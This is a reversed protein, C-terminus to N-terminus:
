RIDERLFGAAFRVIAEGDAGLSAAATRIEGLEASNLYLGTDHLRPPQLAVQFEVALRQREICFLEDANRAAEAGFISGAPCRIAADKAFRRLLSQARRNIRRLM